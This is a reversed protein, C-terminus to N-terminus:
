GTGVEVQFTIQFIEFFNLSVKYSQSHLSCKTNHLSSEMPFYMDSDTIDCGVVRLVPPGGDRCVAHSELIKWGCKDTLTWELLALALRLHSHLAHTSLTHQPKPRQVIGHYVPLEFKGRPSM